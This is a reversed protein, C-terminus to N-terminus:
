YCTYIHVRIENINKSPKIEEIAQNLDFNLFYETWGDYGDYNLTYEYCRDFDKLIIMLTLEEYGTEYGCHIKIDKFKGDEQRKFTEEFNARNKYNNEKYGNVTLTNNM